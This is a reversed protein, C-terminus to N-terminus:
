RRGPMPDIAKMGDTSAMREMRKHPPTSALPLAVRFGYSPGRASWPGPRWSKCYASRVTWDFSDFSSGRQVPMICVRDRWAHTNDSAISFTRIVAVSFTRTTTRECGFRLVDCRRVSLGLAGDLRRLPQAVLEGHDAPAV